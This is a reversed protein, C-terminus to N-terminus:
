QKVPHRDVDRYIYSAHTIVAGNESELQFQIEKFEPLPVTSSINVIQKSSIAGDSTHDFSDIETWAGDPKLRYSVTIKQDFTADLDEFGLNFAVLKKDTFGDGIMQTRYTSPDAFFGSDGSDRDTRETIGYSITSDTTDSYAVLLEGEYNPASAIAYVKGGVGTDEITMSVSIQGLSNVEYVGATHELNEETETAIYIKKGDASSATSSSVTSDNKVLISDKETFSDGGNYQYSTIKSLAQRSNSQPKAMVVTLKGDLVGSGLLRGSDVDIVKDYVNNGIDKDWFHVRVIEDDGYWAIIALYSLYNALIIRNMASSLAFLDQTVTGSLDRHIQNNTTYWVAKISPDYIIAQEGAGSDTAVDTNLTNTGTDYTHYDGGGDIMSIYGQDPYFTAGQSSVESVDPSDVEETATGSSSIRTILLNLNAADEALIYSSGEANVWVMPQVTPATPPTVHNVDTKPQLVDSPTVWKARLSAGSQTREFPAMFNKFEIIEKKNDGRSAM